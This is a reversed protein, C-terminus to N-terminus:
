SVGVKHDAEQLAVDLSCTDAITRGVQPAWTRNLGIYVCAIVFGASPRWVARQRVGRWIRLRCTLDPPEGSEGIRM